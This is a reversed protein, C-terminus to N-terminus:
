DKRETISLINDQGHSGDDISTPVEGRKVREAFETTNGRALIKAQDVWEEREIRGPFALYSGVWLAHDAGWAAVQDFHWIGLGHLLGENVPGIGKIFKLDDPVGGRPASLGLPRLGEHKDEGEVAAAFQPLRLKLDALDADSLPNDANADIRIAGSRVAKAYDTEIGACLLKGQEIWQEREIRGPFSIHHGVWAANAESWDGIQCYRYVGLDKLIEENKPGIGRILKLDDGGGQPMAIGAPKIGPYGAEVKPAAAITADQAKQAKPAKLTAELAAEERNKAGLLQQRMTALDADNVPNDADDGVRIAGTRVARAYDTELGACLLKGQAIWQEREIRGPFSIHHGVWAANAESWDGIQCYRYVGLDKLTRENKPGIGRILKLDDGGDMPMAIRAPKIGPYGAELGVAPAVAAAPAKVSLDAAAAVPKRAGLLQQKVTALDADSLPNDANADIRIAGSRVAKAYDTEIGACLLKGQEIWQEREIRGPFSIHHGVWAANAESWDGIQCHRYVGLDKLIKENKPGIGRILKLDDGGGQPMAIGAPKAGPYGEGVATVTETVIRPCFLSKFWSGIVCGILYAAFMFLASELWFGPKDPLLKLFAVVLGVLFALLGIKLWGLKWTKAGCLFTFWGTLLGVILAALLWWILQWFVYTM